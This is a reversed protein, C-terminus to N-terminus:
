AAGEQGHFAALMRAYMGQQALLIAHHGAEVVNGESLVLIQNAEAVTALRHAIVLATRGELLRQISDRLMQEQAVDLHASPEDLVLLPAGRLFARALALRQAQGGSLRAGGEGLATGLGLPLSDVFDALHAQELARRMDAEAAGPNAMLLNEAVTGNFLFPRQPVWAINERWALSSLNAIPSSDLRITGASPQMFGLLLRIITTKGSGSAGVLATMQGSRMEFSVGNLAPHARDPYTYHVQDFALTFPKRDSLIVRDQASGVAEQMEPVAPPQDLLSFIRQAAAVGAMSAHFRLGLNRLPQYFEPALILIFFAAEFGMWGYLLRLGVEVAIIATGITGLLELALASLFTFRLVRMTVIRYRESVQAIRAAQEQSRGLAKLTGLGQLTDLFYASMRSLAAWQQRTLSQSLSGILFMFFPILPGTFLLVLGSLPDLPLIVALYALPLLGALALQPLYQSFYADLSEVGQTITNLLEGSRESETYAPGLRFLHRVLMERLTQKVQVAAVGGAYESLGSLVARGAVAALLVWLMPMVDSLSQGELFVQAIVRSVQRAQLVTLIGAFFGALVTLIMALGAVRAIRVLRRDLNM